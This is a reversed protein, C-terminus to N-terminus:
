TAEKKAGVPPCGCFADLGRKFLIVAILAAPVAIRTAESGIMGMVALIINTADDFRADQRRECWNGEVCIKQKLAPVIKEWAIGPGRQVGSAKEAYLDFQQMLDDLPQDLYRQIERTPDSM